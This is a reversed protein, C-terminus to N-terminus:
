YASVAFTHDGKLFQSSALLQENYFNWYGRKREVNAIFVESLYGPSPATNFSRYEPLLPVASPMDASFANSTHLDRHSKLGYYFVRKEDHEKNSLETVLQSIATPGIGRESLV